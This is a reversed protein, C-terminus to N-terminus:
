QTISNYLLRDRQRNKQRTQSYVHEYWIRLQRRVAPCTQLNGISQLSICIENQYDKNVLFRPLMFLFFVDFYM